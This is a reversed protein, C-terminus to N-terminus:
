NAYQPMDHNVAAKYYSGITSPANFLAALLYQKINRVKTTNKDMCELVYEIHSYNLKLLKGKVFSAPYYEGAIRIMDKETQVTELILQYIEEVLDQERSYTHLLVDFDINKKVLEAYANITQEKQDCRIRDGDSKIHNSKMNSQNNYNMYTKNYLPVTKPVEQLGNNPVESTDTEAGRLHKNMVEPTGREISRHVADKEQSTGMENSRQSSQHTMFSKVYIINPLGFGRKKKEILGIKELETLYDMAKKKSFGLDSQIETIQYIIYVKNEEDLWKNKMSLGMRDLLVSYLVKASLSLTSFAEDEASTEAAKVSMPIVTDFIEIKEGYAERVKGAVDKAYNTRFDVMTLLIGEFVLQRNLRKKVMAITHILQQLGKVPLYAAQVPILVSDAAVLANITMLGLSPMCDILIYDYETRAAEIYEKMILERSMVNGMTVELASLEINAPLLDVNEKHHLIGDTIEFEKENIIAMMITALTTGIEDPEVYGLSATLSGQPDADILLVKKGQRALGIGLNVTTTTKGVGGKQNSIAIVRCM